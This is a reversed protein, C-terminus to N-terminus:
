NEFERDDELTKIAVDILDPQQLLHLEERVTQM